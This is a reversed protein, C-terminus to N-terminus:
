KKDKVEWTIKRRSDFYIIQGVKRLKGIQERSKNMNGEVVQCFM